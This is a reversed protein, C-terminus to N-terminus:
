PVKEEVLVISNEKAALYHFTSPTDFLPKGGKKVLIAEYAPGATEDYMMSMGARTVAVYVLHNGDPSFSLTGVVVSEVPKLERGDMVVKWVAGDKAMAAYHQSNASFVPNGEPIGDYWKGEKGDVVIHQKEGSIAVYAFRGGDPSFRLTSVGINEHPTGKKSDM